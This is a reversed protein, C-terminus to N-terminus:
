THKKNHSGKVMSIDGKYKNSYSGKVVPMKPSLEVVPIWNVQSHRPLIQDLVVKGVEKVVVLGHPGSWLPPTAGLLPHTPPGVADPGIPVQKDVRFLYCQQSYSYRCIRSVGRGGGVWGSVCVCVCMVRTFIDLDVPLKMVRASAILLNEASPVRKARASGPSVSSSALKTESM